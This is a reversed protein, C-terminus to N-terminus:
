NPIKRCQMKVKEQSIEVKEMSNVNEFQKKCDKLWEAHQNHEKRTSWTDNWFKISDESNPIVQKEGNLENYM